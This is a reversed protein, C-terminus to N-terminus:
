GRNSGVSQPQEPGLLEASRAIWFWRARWGRLSQRFPVFTVEFRGWRPVDIRMQQSASEPGCPALLHMSGVIYQLPIKSLRNERNPADNSM